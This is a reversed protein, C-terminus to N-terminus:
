IWRRNPSKCLYVNTQCWAHTTVFSTMKLAFCFSLPEKVYCLEIFTRHSSLSLKILTRHFSSSIFASRFYKSSFIQFFCYSDFGKGEVNLNKSPALVLPIVVTSVRERGYSCPFKFYFINTCSPNLETNTM